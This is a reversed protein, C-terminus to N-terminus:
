WTPYWGQEFEPVEDELLYGSQIEQNIFPFSPDPQNYGNFQQQMQRGLEIEYASFHFKPNPQSNSNSGEQMWDAGPNENDTFPLQDNLHTHNDSAPGFTGQHHLSEGWLTGGFSDIASSQSVRAASGPVPTAQYLTPPYTQQHSALHLSGEQPLPFPNPFLNGQNSNNLADYAPCHPFDIGLPLQPCQQYNSMHPTQSQNYPNMNNGSNWDGSDPVQPYQGFDQQYGASSPLRRPEVLCKQHQPLSALSPSPIHNSHYPPPTPIAANPVQIYQTLGEEWSATNGNQTVGSNPTKTSGRSPSPSRNDDSRRSRSARRAQREQLERLNRKLISHSGKGSLGSASTQGTVPHSHIPHVSGTINTSTTDFKALRRSKRWNRQYENNAKRKEEKLQEADLAVGLSAPSLILDENDPNVWVVEHEPVLQDDADLLRKMMSSASVGSLSTCTTTSNKIEEKTMGNTNGDFTTYQSYVSGFITRELFKPISTRSYIVELAAACKRAALEDLADSSMNQYRSLTHERDYAAVNCVQKVIAYNAKDNSVSHVSDLHGDLYDKRIASLAHHSIWGRFETRGRATSCAILVRAGDMQGGEHTRHGFRLPYISPDASPAITPLSLDAVNSIDASRIRSNTTSQEVTDRDM